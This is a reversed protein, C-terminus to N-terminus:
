LDRLSDENRKMRKEIKQETATIEVMRDELDNIWEEAETIKSNIGELTNNIETQKNKLGQLDKTFREQMKEIKTEMRKRLDQIMKVIMIRFEKEPINGIEVENLQKEQIKDQGKMQSTGKQKKM